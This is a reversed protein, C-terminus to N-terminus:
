EKGKGLIQSIGYSYVKMEMARNDANQTIKNKEEIVRRFSCTVNKCQECNNCGAEPKKERYEAMFVVSKLPRLMGNEWTVSLGSFASICNKVEEMNDDGLFHYEGMWKGTRRFVLENVKEYARSLFEMGFCEMGYSLLLHGTDAIMDSLEDYRKGLTVIGVAYMKKLLIGTEVEILEALFRGVADLLEKDKEDFHYRKMFTDLVIEDYTIKFSDQLENM